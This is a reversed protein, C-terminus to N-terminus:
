AARRGAADDLRFGEVLAGLTELRELLQGASTSDREAQEAAEAAGGEMDGLGERLAAVGGMQEQSSAAVGALAGNLAQMETRVADFGEGTERVRAVGTEVHKASEGILVAIDRAAEASRQALSRVESAVVAFGKGAEGARAAEVAANLALLNTQFAISDIVGSIDGVRQSSSEILRVAEVAEEARRAGDQSRADVKRASAEAERLMEANATFGRGVEDMSSSSEAVSGAAGAARDASAAAGERLDEAETRAAEAVARLKRLTQLQREASSDMREALAAFRGEGVRGLRETLDGDSMAAAQRDLAGLVGEVTDLLRDIGRALADLAPEEFRRAVRASLDGHVARDVARGFAAELTAMTDARRAEDREEAARAAADADRARNAEAEAAARSREASDAARGRDLVMISLAATELVLVVAHLLTRGFDGGGPYVLAPMAFNLVLHHAAVVGAATLLARIDTMAALAAMMAFFYMHTDIQWAHGAFAATLVAGQAILAGAVAPRSAAGPLRLAMEATLALALSAAVAAPMPTGALLAAAAIIPPHAWALRAIVTTARAQSRALPDAPSGADDLDTM